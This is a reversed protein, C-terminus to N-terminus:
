CQYVVSFKGSGLQRGRQYISDFSVNNAQQKILRVWDQVFEHNSHYFRRAKVTKKCHYINLGYMGDRGELKIQNVFLGKLPIIDYAIRDERNHYIFLANDRLIFFRTMMLLSKQGVKM